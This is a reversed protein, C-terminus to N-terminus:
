RTEPLQKPVNLSPTVPVTTTTGPVTTTSAPVTTTSAPVTTTTTTTTSSTTTTTVASPTWNGSPDYFFNGSLDCLYNASPDMMTNSSPDFMLNGSMDYFFNGSNGWANVDCLANASAGQDNIWNTFPFPGNGSSILGRAGGLSTPQAQAIRGLAFSVMTPTAVAAGLLGTLFKRRNPNTNKLIDQIIEDESM